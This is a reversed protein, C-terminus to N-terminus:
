FPLHPTFEALFHLCWRGVSFGMGFGAVFVAALAIMQWPMQVIKLAPSFTSLSVMGAAISFIWVLADREKEAQTAEAKYKASLMTQEQLATAQQQFDDQAKLLAVKQDKALAQMHAVTALIDAKTVFSLDAASIERLSALACLFLLFLIKAKNMILKTEAV